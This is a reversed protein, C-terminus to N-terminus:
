ESEGDYCGCPVEVPTAAPLADVDRWAFRRGLGKVTTLEANAEMLLARAYLEPYEERLRRIEKLKPAPCFFCSSKGAMPASMSRIADLCEERDMDWEILPYWYDYKEDSQIKARRTEEAGYGIAKRIRGGAKWHAKYRANAWKEQPQIKYKHSCGKFGYALSPLMKMRLCNEELTEQRGGKKVVTIPPFERSVLWKSFDDVHRYTEPLEGGTDAFLIADPRISKQVMVCLMATSNVGGGFSVMLPVDQMTITHM